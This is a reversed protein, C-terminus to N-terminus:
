SGSHWPPPRSTSSTATSSFCPRLPFSRRTGPAWFLARSPLISSRSFRRSFMAPWRCTSALFNGGAGALEEEKLVQYRQGGVPGDGALAIPSGIPPERDLLGSASLMSDRITEADLRRANSRWLLHNDPDALFNTEDHHSGLQYVRSTVMRKILTKISWGDAVFQRALYDLLEPHSPSAGSAGFNDASEVLGRGFLWHWVRNVIVRSTLTNDTSAIWEALELRGSADGPIELDKGGSLFSPIGRPVKEEEKAIDGRAFFPSDGITEFGSSQRGWQESRRGHRRKAPANGPFGHGAQRASGDSLAQGHRGSQFRGVGSRDTQCQDDDQCHRVRESPQRRRGRKRSALAEAQRAVIAERQSNKEAWVAPDMHRGLTELGASATVEILSSANRARVGGPTGFHTESSLFIGALATYDRQTIPDFKHDHCRACAVTMGLFAQTVADIQEGALEVAFQRPDTENLGKPGVALFGTATLKKARDPESVTPLLDGAIQERIFEDFPMDKAFADIVYDRYRWAEPLTMNVDRGTTEAYRAVDLWHRGWREGFHPSELLTAVIHEYVAPDPNGLFHAAFDSSPPLGTLDLFVRRLLSAPDADGVPHIGKEEMSTLIFRDIETRAWESDKPTPVSPSAVPQYSWWAKAKEPDYSKQVMTEEKRPDPAGMTVWEEFDAIVSDPLKGGQKKPPMALDPDLYHIAEILLSEQPKFPVVAPGGAGGRLMAARSDLLLDGTVKEAKASHCEFCHEALVPRIKTEFFQVQDATLAEEASSTAFLFTWYFAISLNRILLRFM